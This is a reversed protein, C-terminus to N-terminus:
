RPYALFDYRFEGHHGYQHASVELGGRCFFVLSRVVCREVLEAFVSSQLVYGRAIYVSVYWCVCGYVVPEQSLWVCSCVIRVCVCRDGGVGRFVSVM